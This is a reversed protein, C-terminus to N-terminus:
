SHSGAVEAGVTHELPACSGGSGSPVWHQMQVGGISPIIALVSLFSAVPMWVLFLGQVLFILGVCAVCPHEWM